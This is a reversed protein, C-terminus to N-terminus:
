RFTIVRVNAAGASTLFINSVVMDTLTIEENAALVISAGDTSNIKFSAAASTTISVKHAPTDFINDTTKVNRDSAGGGGIAIAAVEYSDYLRKDQNPNLEDAQTLRFYTIDTNDANSNRFFLNQPISPAKASVNFGTMEFKAVIVGAILFVVGTKQWRIEFLVEEGAWDEDWTLTKTEVTGSDDVVKASFTTNTIDFFAAGNPTASDALAALKFGWQRVDSATPDAPINVLMSATGYLSTAKTAFTSSTLRIKNSVILPIGSLTKLQTTDYGSIVPDYIFHQM